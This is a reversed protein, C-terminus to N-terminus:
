ARRLNVKIYKLPKIIEVDVPFNTWEGKYTQNFVIESSGDEYGLEVSANATSDYWAFRQAYLMIDLYVRRINNFDLQDWNLKYYGSCTLEGDGHGYNLYYPGMGGYENNALNYEFPYYDITTKGKNVLSNFVNYSSAMINCTKETYLINGAKDEKKIYMLATGTHKQLDANDFNEIDLVDLVINKTKENWKGTKDKFIYYISDEPFDVTTNISCVTNNELYEETIYFLDDIEKQKVNITETEINKNIPKISFSTDEGLVVSYDIYIDNKGNGYIKNNEPTIIYEIGNENSIKLLIKANIM